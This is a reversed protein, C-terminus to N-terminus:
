GNRREVADDLMKRTRRDEDTMRYAGVPWNTRYQFFRYASIWAAGEGAFSSGLEIDNNKIIWRAGVKVCVAEPYQTNFEIKM